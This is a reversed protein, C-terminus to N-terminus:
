GLKIKRALPSSGRGAFRSGIKHFFLVFVVAALSVTISGEPQRLPKIFPHPFDENKIECLHVWFIYLGMFLFTIYLSSRRFTRETTVLDTWAFFSTGVNVLLSLWLPGGAILGLQLTKRAATQVGMKLPSSTWFIVTWYVLIAANSIQFSACSMENSTRKLMKEEPFLHSLLSIMLAVMQFSFSCFTLFKFFWGFEWAQPMTSAHKSFHWCFVYVYLLFSVLHFLFCANSAPATATAGYRGGSNSAM